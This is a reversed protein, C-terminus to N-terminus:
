WTRWWPWPRAPHRARVRWTGWLYLGAAAVVVGTVVPAFVWHDAAQQWGFPPLVEDGGSVVRGM